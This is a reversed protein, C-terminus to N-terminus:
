KLMQEIGFGPEDWFDVIFRGVGQSLRENNVVVMLFPDPHEIHPAPAYDCVFFSVPERFDREIEAVKRLAHIPVLKDYPLGSSPIKQITEHSGGSGNNSWRMARESHPGHYHDSAARMENEARGWRMAPQGFHVNEIDDKARLPRWHWGAKAASEAAAKKDMYDAVAHLSFIGWDKQRLFNKFREVRLDADIHPNQLDLSKCLAAYEHLPSEPARPTAEPARAAALNPREQVLLDSAATKRGTWSASEFISM